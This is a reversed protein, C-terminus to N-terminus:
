PWIFLIACLFSIGFAVSLRLFRRPPRENKVDRFTVFYMGCLFRALPHVTRPRKAYYGAMLFSVAFLLMLSGQWWHRVLLKVSGALLIGFMAVAWVHGESMSQMAHTRMHHPHMIPPRNQIEPAPSSSGSPPYMAPPISPSSRIPDTNISM